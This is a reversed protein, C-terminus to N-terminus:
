SVRVMSQLGVQFFDLAIQYSMRSTIFKINGHWGYKSCFTEKKLM